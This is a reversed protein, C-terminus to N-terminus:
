HCQEGRPNSEEQGRAGEPSQPRGASPSCSVAGRGRTESLWCVKGPGAACGDRSGEPGPSTAANALGPYSSRLTLCTPSPLAERSATVVARPETLVCQGVWRPRSPSAPLQHCHGRRSSQTAGHPRPLAGSSGARHKRSVRGGEQNFEQCREPESDAWSCQNDATPQAPSTSRNGGRQEQALSYSTPGPM